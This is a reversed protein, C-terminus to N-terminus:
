PWKIDFRKFDDFIWMQCGDQVGDKINVDLHIAAPLYTMGFIHTPIFYMKNMAPGSLTLNTLCRLFDVNQCGDQVGDKINM